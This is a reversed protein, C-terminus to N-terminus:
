LRLKPAGMANYLHLPGDMTWTVQGLYDAIDELSNAVPLTISQYQKEFLWRCIRSWSYRGSRLWWRLFLNIM